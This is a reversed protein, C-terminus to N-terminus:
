AIISVMDLVREALRAEGEQQMQKAAEERSLGRTFVRWAVEQDLTVRADPAAPMQDTLEWAGSERIANWTGGAEGTIVL